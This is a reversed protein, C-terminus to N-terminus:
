VGSATTFFLRRAGSPGPYLNSANSPSAKTELRWAMVVTAEAFLIMSNALAPSGIMIM